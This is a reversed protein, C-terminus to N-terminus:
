DNPILAYRITLSLKLKEWVATSLFSVKRFGFGVFTFSETKFNEKHGPNEDLASEEEKFSESESESCTDVYEEEPIFYPVESLLDNMNLNKFFPHDRVEYAGM